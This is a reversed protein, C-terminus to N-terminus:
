GNGSVGSPRPGREPSVGAVFIGGDDDDDVHGEPLGEVPTFSARRESARQAAVQELRHVEALCRAAAAEATGHGDPGYIPAFFVPQDTDVRVVQCGSSVHKLSYLRAAPAPAPAVPVEDPADWDNADDLAQIANLCADRIARRTAERITQANGRGIIKVEACHKGYEQKIRIGMSVGDLADGVTVMTELVEQFTPAAIRGNVEASRTM